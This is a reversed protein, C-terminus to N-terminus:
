NRGREPFDFCSRVWEGCRGMGGVVWERFKELGYDSLTTRFLTNADPCSITLNRRPDAGGCPYVSLKIYLTKGRGEKSVKGMSGRKRGIGKGWPSGGGSQGDRQYLRVGVM